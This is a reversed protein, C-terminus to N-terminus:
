VPLGPFFVELFLMLTLTPLLHSQEGSDRWLLNLRRTINQLDHDGVM